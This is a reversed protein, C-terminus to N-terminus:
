LVNATGCRFGRVSVPEMLLSGKQSRELDSDKFMSIQDVNELFYQSTQWFFDSINDPFHTSSFPTYQITAKENLM